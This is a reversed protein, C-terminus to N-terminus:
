EVVPEFYLTVAGSRAFAKTKILRLTRRDGIDKFLALGSGAVIPQVSFQYQDILNLKMLAVILSPSGVLIDKGGQQKLAAIEEEIVGKALRANRWAVSKLTRSFVLKPINDILVAFEDTPRNGTPNRIVAPWYSEMLQYTVRGYVLTGGRRLLDNYHRHIEDDAIMVTHDCFGDLTMNMAAIVKRMILRSTWDQSKRDSSDVVVQPLVYFVEVSGKGRRDVPRRGM